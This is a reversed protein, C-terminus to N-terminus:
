DVVQGYASPNKKPSAPATEVPAAQTVVDGLNYGGLNGSLLKLREEQAAKSPMSLSIEKKLTQIWEQYSQRSDDDQAALDADTITDMIKQAEEINVKRIIKTTGPLQYRGGIMGEALDLRDYLTMSSYASSQAPQIVVADVKVTTPDFKNALVELLNMLASGKKAVLRAGKLMDSLRKIIALTFDSRIAKKDIDKIVLTDSSIDMSSNFALELIPKVIEKIKEKDDGAMALQISLDNGDKIILSEVLMDLDSKRAIAKQRAAAQADLAAIYKDMDGVLLSAKETMKIGTPNFNDFLIRQKTMYLIDKLAYVQKTPDSVLTDLNYGAWFKKVVFDNKEDRDFIYNVFSQLYQEARSSKDQQSLNKDLVLQYLVSYLAVFIKTPESFMLEKEMPNLKFLKFETYVNKKTYGTIYNSDPDLLTLIRNGDPGAFSSLYGVSDDTINLGQAFSRITVSGLSGKVDFLEVDRSSVKGDVDVTSVYGLGASYKVVGKDNKVAAPNFVSLYTPSIIGVPYTIIAFKSQGAAVKAFRFVANQRLPDNSASYALPTVILKETKGDITVDDESKLQSQVMLIQGDKNKIVFFDSTNADFIKVLDGIKSLIAPNANKFDADRTVAALFAAVPDLWSDLSADSVHNQIFEQITLLNDNLNALDQKLAALAVTGFQAPISAKQQQALSILAAKLTTGSARSLQLAFGKAQDESLKAAAADILAATTKGASDTQVLMTLNGNKLQMNELSSGSFSFEDGGLITADVLVLDGNKLALKKQKDTTLLNLNGTSAVQVIWNSSDNMASSSAFSVFNKDRDALLYQGSSMINLVDNTGIKISYSSDSRNLLGDGVKAKDDTGFLLNYAPSKSVLNILNVAPVIKEKAFKKFQALDKQTLNGSAQRASVYESVAAVFEEFQYRDAQIKTILTSIGDLTAKLKLDYESFGNKNDIINVDNSKAAEAEYAAFTAEISTKFSPRVVAFTTERLDEKAHFDASIWYAFGLINQGASNKSVTLYGMMNEDTKESHTRIVVAQSTAPNQLSEFYFKQMLTPLQEQTFEVWKIDFNKSSDVFAQLDKQYKQFESKVEDPMSDIRDFVNSYKRDTPVMTLRYNKGDKSIEVCVLNDSQNVVSLSHKAYNFRNSNVLLVEGNDGIASADVYLIKGSAKDHLAVEVQESAGIESKGSEVIKGDQDLTREYKVLNGDKDYTVALPVIYMVYDFWKDLREQEELAIALNASSGVGQSLMQRLASIKAKLLSSRNQYYNMAKQQFENGIQRKLVELKSKMTDEAASEFSAGVDSIMQKQAAIQDNKQKELDLLKQQAQQINTNGEAIMQNLKDREQDYTQQLNKITRDSSQQQLTIEANKQALLVNLKVRVLTADLNQQDGGIVGQMEVLNKKIGASIKTFEGKWATRNEATTYDLGDVRGAFSDVLSMPSWSSINGLIASFKEIGAKAIALKYDDVSLDLWASLDQDSALPLLSKKQDENLKVFADKLSVKSDLMLSQLVDYAQLISEISSQTSSKTILKVDFGKDASSGQKVAELGAQISGVRLKVADLDDTIKLYNTKIWNMRYPTLKPDNGSLKEGRLMSQMLNYEDSGPIMLELLKDKQDQPIDKFTVNQDIFDSLVNVQNTLDDIKAQRKQNLAELLAINKDKQQNIRSNEDITAQLLTKLRDQEAVSNQLDLQTKELIKKTANGTEVAQNLQDSLEEVRKQQQALYRSYDANVKTLESNLKKQAELDNGSKALQEALEQKKKELADTTNKLDEIQQKLRQNEAALADNANTLDKNRQELTRQLDDKEKQLAAIKEANAQADANLQNIQADRKLIETNLRASELAAANKVNALDQRLLVSAAENARAIQQWKEVDAKAQELEQQKQNQLEELQKNADDLQSQLLKNASAVAKSAEIASNLKKQLDNAKDTLSQIQNNKSSVLKTVLEIMDQVSVNANGLINKSTADLNPQNKFLEQLKNKVAIEADKMTQVLDKQAQLDKQLASIQADYDKKLQANASKLAAVDAQLTAILKDKMSIIFTMKDTLDSLSSVGSFDSSGMKSKIEAMQNAISQQQSSLGDIMAAQGDLSSQTDSLAAQMDALQKSMYTSMVSFSSQLSSTIAAVKDAAALAKTTDAGALKAIQLTADTVARLDQQAKIKADLQSQAIRAFGANVADRKSMLEDNVSGLGKIIDQLQPLLANQSTTLADSVNPAVRSQIDFVVNQLANSIYNSVQEKASFLRNLQDAIMNQLAIAATLNIDSTPNSIVNANDNFMKVFQNISADFTAPFDKMQSYIVNNANINAQIKQLSANISDFNAQVVPRATDDASLGTDKNLLSSLVSQNQSLVTYWNQLRRLRGLSNNVLMNLFSAYDTVVNEFDDLSLTTKKDQSYLLSLLLSKRSNYLSNYRQLDNNILDLVSNRQNNINNQYPLIANIQNKVDANTVNFQILENILDSGNVLNAELSTMYNTLTAEDIRYQDSTLYDNTGASMKKVLADIVSVENEIRPLIGDKAAVTQGNVTVNVTRQLESIKRAVLLEKEKNLDRIYKYANKNSLVAQADAWWVEHNQGDIMAVHGADDLAVDDIVTGVSVMSTGTSDVKFLDFTKDLKMCALWLINDSTRGARVKIYSKIMSLENAANADLKVKRAAKDIKKGFVVGVGFTDVKYIAADTLVVLAGACRTVNVVKESGLDFLSGYYLNNKDQWRRMLVDSSHVDYKDMRTKLNYDAPIMSNNINLGNIGWTNVQIRDHRQKYNFSRFCDARSFFGQVGTANVTLLTGGFIVPTGSLIKSDVLAPLEFWNNLYASLPDSKKSGWAFSSITPYVISATTSVDEWNDTNLPKNYADSIEADSWEFGGPRVYKGSLYNSVKCLIRKSSVRYAIHEAAESSYKWNSRFSQLTNTDIARPAVSVAHKYIPNGNFNDIEVDVELVKDFKNETSHIQKAGNGDLSTNKLASDSDASAAFMYFPIKKGSFIPHYAIALKSCAGFDTVNNFVILDTAIAQRSADTASPVLADAASLLSFAFNSLFLFKFVFSKSVAKNLM